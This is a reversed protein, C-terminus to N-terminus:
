TSFSSKKAATTGIKCHGLTYFINRISARIWWMAYYFDLGKKPDFREFISNTWSKGRIYNVLSFVMVQFKMAIKVVLRLHSNILAHATTNCRNKIWEPLDLSKKM